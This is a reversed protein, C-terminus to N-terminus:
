PFIRRSPVDTMMLQDLFSTPSLYASIGCLEQWLIEERKLDEPQLDLGLDLTTFTVFLDIDSVMSKGRELSGFLHISKVKVRAIQHDNTRVAWDLVKELISEAETRSLKPRDIHQSLAMGKRTPTFRGSEIWGERVLEAQVRQADFDSVKLETKILETTVRRPTISPKGDKWEMEIDRGMLAKFMARVKRAGFGAIKKPMEMDLKASSNCLLLPCM